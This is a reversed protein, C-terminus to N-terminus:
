TCAVGIWIPGGKKNNNAKVRGHIRGTGLNIGIQVYWFRDLKGQLVQIQDAQHVPFRNSQIQPPAHLDIGRGHSALAAIALRPEGSSLCDGRHLARRMEAVKKRKEEVKGQV